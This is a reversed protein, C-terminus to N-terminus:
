TFLFQLSEEYIALDKVLHQSNVSSTTGSSEFVSEAEFQTTILEHTKFFQIPLFPIQHIANISYSDVDLLDCYQRYVRNNEYQFRFIELTISLFNQDNATFIKDPLGLNKVSPNM